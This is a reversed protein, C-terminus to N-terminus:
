FFPLYIITAVCDRGCGRRFLWTLINQAPLAALFTLGMRYLM